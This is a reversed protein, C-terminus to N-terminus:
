SVLRAELFYAMEPPLILVEGAEEYVFPKLKFHHGSRGTVEAFVAGEWLSKRFAEESALGERTKLSFETLIAPRDQRIREALGRFVMPEFGEVDVKLLDIQPLQLSNCLRDGNRIELLVPERVTEGDEPKFTGTGSNSVDGPYYNQVEDSEGLAFPVVQVHDFSNLRMKRHIVERLPAYPEFAIVADSKGAMFLSHNGLNAGVDFFFVHGRKQKIEKALAELLTLEASAYSGYAFVMWDAFHILDGEYRLGYFDVEFPFHVGQDPHWLKRLLWDHGKPIWTQKGAWRLLRLRAPLEDARAPSPGPDVSSVSGLRVNM